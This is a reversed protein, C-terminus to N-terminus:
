SETLHNQPGPLFRTAYVGASFAIVAVLQVQDLGHLTFVAIAVAALLLKKM